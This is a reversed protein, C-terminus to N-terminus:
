TVIYAVLDGKEVCKHGLVDYISEHLHAHHTTGAAQDWSEGEQGEVTRVIAEAAECFVWISGVRDM